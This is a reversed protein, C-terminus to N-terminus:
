AKDGSVHVGVTQVANNGFGAVDWPPEIPQVNGEADTARCRLVYEGPTADWTASWKSWAYPSAGPSVDAETWTDGVGFEVRAIPIRGAWARGVIDTPGAALHRLRTIWDPIGPPVMLSKVRISTVPRGPDDAKDRFRYTQVQQFGQYPTDIAEISTLWKVSAMGYWGPVIIRLPAGHQPLLPAGNMGHVLLVDLEALEPLSLSRGFRHRVGKDFGEDAGTFVIDVTGAKPRARELLPRLATGTWESTGVAEVGWPMSHSRPSVGSRGNGACELTVPVTEQPLARIDGLSLEFPAEFGAGFRLRYDRPDIDPVDFHTLLYHAGTPTLDHRLSELIVGANRNALRLEHESYVGDVTEPKGTDREFVDSIKRM